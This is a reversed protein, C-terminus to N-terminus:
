FFAWQVKFTVNNGPAVVPVGLGNTETTLGRSWILYVNKTSDVMWHLKAYLNVGRLESAKQLLTTVYLNQSFSWTGGLISLRKHVDGQPLHIFFLEQSATLQLRGAFTNWNVQALPHDMRGDYYGGRYASLTVSLPWFKPTNFRVGYYNWLYKGAPVIVDPTIAFPRSPADFERYYEFSYFYGGVTNFNPFLKWESSQKGGRIGDVQTYTAHWFFQQIWNWTDSKPRPAYDFEAFYQRTGPRPLFGLTPDLGAGFVNVNARLIWLDNPYDIGAGYGTRSGAPVDGTSQAGWASLNLNKDGMFTSTRWVADTGVLTNRSLGLPDGHTILTGVQLNQNVNYAGRGVFLDTANSVSSDGTRVGLVGFSGSDSQGMLKVGERMPVTQGNLLGIRRSQYPVFTAGSKGNLGYGFTFLNSGDLFFQRTEPFSLAFRTTNIKLQDPEAEAFDTNYTLLGAIAPTFNYKLDFGGKASTGDLPRDRILGYPRFDFGSGRSLDNMGTLRGERPLNYVQSDLTLGSWNLKLTQRPVYRNVNFGWAPTNRDFQLARTDIAIEATWGHANRQVKARWTGNWSYDVGNYNSTATPTPALLGDAMAGTANVQFIYASRQTYFPDLVLTVGDDQSQDSDRMLTSASIQAPDPDDCIVGVYLTHEDHLLLVQTRFPTTEGPSPSQQTLEVAGALKWLAGDVRGDLVLEDNGIKTAHVTPREVQASVNGSALMLALLLCTPWLRRSALPTALYECLATM